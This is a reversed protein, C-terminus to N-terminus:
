KIQFLKINQQKIKNFLSYKTQVKILLTSTNKQKFNLFSGFKPESSLRQLSVWLENILSYYQQFNDNRKRYERNSITFSENYIFSFGIRLM